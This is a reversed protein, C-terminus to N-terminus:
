WMYPDGAPWSVAAAASARRVPISPHNQTARLLDVCVVCLERMIWISSFAAPVKSAIHGCTQHVCWVVSRAWVVGDVHACVQAPRSSRVTRLELECMSSGAVLASVASM